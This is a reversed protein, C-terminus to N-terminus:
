RPSTLAANESSEWVHDAAAAEEANAFGSLWYPMFPVLPANM